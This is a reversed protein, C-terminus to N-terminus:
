QGGHENRRQHVVWRPRDDDDDDDDDEDPSFFRTRPLAAAASLLLARRGEDFCQRPTRGAGFADVYGEAFTQAWEDRLQGQFTVGILGRRKLSPGFWDTNCAMLMVVAGPACHAGLLDSFAEIFDLRATTSRASSLNL